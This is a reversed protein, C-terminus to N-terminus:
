PFWGGWGSGSSLNALWGYGGKTQGLFTSKTIKMCNKVVKDLNRGGGGWVCVCVCVLWGRKPFGALHCIYALNSKWIYKNKMYKNHQDTRKQMDNLPETKFLLKLSIEILVLGLLYMSWCSSSEMSSFSILVIYSVVRM